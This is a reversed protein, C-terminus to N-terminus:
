MGTAAGCEPCHASDLGHLPYGCQGCASPDRAIAKMERQVRLNQAAHVALAVIAAVIAAALAHDSGFVGVYTAFVGVFGIIPLWLSSMAPSEFKLRRLALIRQRENFGPLM